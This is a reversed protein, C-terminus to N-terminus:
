RYDDLIVTVAPSRVDALAFRISDTKCRQFDRADNLDAINRVAFPASPSCVEDAANSVRMFLRHAGDPTNVDIDSVNVTKHQIQLDGLVRGRVEVGPVGPTLPQAAAPLALTAAGLALTSLMVHKLMTPIGEM